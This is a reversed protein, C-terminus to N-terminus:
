AHAPVAHEAAEAAVLQALRVALAIASYTPNAQGSTPFVASGAVFLNASGFVRCDGDVVGARESEAMRATGVQHVGDTAQALIADEREPPPQHWALEGLGNESLWAALLEHTRVIPRADAHSFRLDIRARPMGLADTENSLTVRSQSNPLQEGHFHMAYRRGRNRIHLGPLRTNALFRGHVFRPVFAALAPLDRLLNAVHPGYATRPTTNVLRLHESVLRRGLPPFSLALYALSLVANGHAADRFHPMVPWLSINSLAELRQLEASATFRRRAYRGGEDIYFDFGRDLAGSKLVVTAIQGSLHGMYYRGLAGEPGGFRAPAGRRAALMLRATEVGGCAIVFARARVTGSRGNRCTALVGAVRGDEALELDTVTVGTRAHVLPSRSVAEGHAARFSPPDAYRILSSVAFRADHRELDPVPSDFTSAGCNAYRSAVTFFRSFDRYAIPWSCLPDIARAEFDIPDLPVCGAGWLNSTGGFSREVAVTMDAQANGPPLVASSLRQTDPSPAMAGSELLTVSQGNRALELATVIGVPGAGIVCINHVRDFLGDPEEGLM